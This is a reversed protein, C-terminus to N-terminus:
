PLSRVLARTMDFYGYGTRITRRPKYFDAGQLDGSMEDLSPSFKPIM